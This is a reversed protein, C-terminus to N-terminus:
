HHTAGVTETKKLLIIPLPKEFVACLVKLTFHRCLVRDKM